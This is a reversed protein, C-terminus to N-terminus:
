DFYASFDNSLAKNYVLEIQSKLIRDESLEPLNDIDHWAVDLVDFGKQLEISTPECYIVMKYVYFPQPPHAHERKDFVALLAITNVDLGTEEKVEKIAVERPTQGVDAWGGPLSWKGDASERALLIQKKDDSLVLARVDTKVTPYDTVPAFMSKLSAIDNGSLQSMLDISIEHLETYRERDYENSCYLLGTDALAKLKKIQDLINNPM